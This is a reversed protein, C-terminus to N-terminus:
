LSIPASSNLPFSVELNLQCITIRARELDGGDLFKSLIEFEGGEIDMLFNDIFGVEVHERLFKVLEVHKVGQTM